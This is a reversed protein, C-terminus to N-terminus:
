NKNRLKLGSEILSKFREWYDPRSIWYRPCDKGTIDYHRYLNKKEIHPYKRLLYFTLEIVNLITRKTFNGSWDPHCTEIGILYNNPHRGIEEQIGAIYDYAGVHWAKEDDPISQIIENDDIIFHTAAYRDEIDDDINQNALLGFYIRNAEASTGPNGAYHYAIGKIEYLKKGPRSFPNIPLLSERIEM